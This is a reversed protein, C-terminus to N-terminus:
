EMLYTIINICNDFRTVEICLLLAIPNVKSPATFVCLQLMYVIRRRTNDLCDMVWTDAKKRVCLLNIRRQILFSITKVICRPLAKPSALHRSILV